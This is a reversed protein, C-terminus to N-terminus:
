IIILISNVNPINISNILKKGDSCNSFIESVESRFNRTIEFLSVLYFQSRAIFIQLHQLLFNYYFLFYIIFFCEIVRLM